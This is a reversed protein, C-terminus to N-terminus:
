LTLQDAHLETVGVLKISFDPATDANSNGYVTIGDADVEFRLQKAGDFAGDGKFTYGKLASFDLKDGDGFGIIVDQKDSLGMENLANFKFTDKGSGGYMTDAGLGGILVNEGGDGAHLIDNGAGGNLVNNGASGWIENDAANGTLNISLNGLQRADLNELNAGLTISASGTFSSIADADMRLELTDTGQNAKEVITDELAVTAKTGTGKVLLDVIYTDNGEGGILTDVGKGGDLVNNGGNGTITNKLENGTGKLAGDLLILNELNDGLTYDISAKVTDTGENALEIVVDGANDVIYTDNGKGGILTDAGAGGDLINAAANGTLVNDQSNGTLNIAAASDVIANEVNDALTYSNKAYSVVRVTDIGGAEANEEVVVDKDSYVYYTDDGNGGVLLDGGGKGNLTDNGDGAIIVNRSANGILVNDSANGTIDFLGTGTVTVNEVNLLSTSSLDVLQAETKSLNRYTIQLTDDGEGANEVLLGLERADDIVYTDNGKGGILTDVGGKGDLLNDGDNGTLVNNAANGTLNIKLAGTQSADLNELNAALTISANGTFSAIADADMRLQLTDTGDNAKETITDELAVTAKTGTGKVLLDVIYTDDGAGGILTDVGKGGDLVNAASNGTIINKLDNGTGNSAGDLLVLNELNAGLTYSISSRVTDTGENELEVVVDGANDVIYTDNGKGGILTDAGAGGDLINAAANGTLVNDQSNGTLNIAATSDVIANEVNDALTYSNKAYSVVRVTDIGGAEANEEVVVDKDSYVYYTDDGNGGVLLDGGGKGNLTDNGDGAIIVNRSANGILVNDSANGTIDFLGTGTITVNEVNLLSTSSLDVLQAETKSLNRYTIQLTDNGEGANEVLLGLERADDIVYTDNGKGGILTDVGAKGDLLNDGDNGTLVNDAANGTLNIKLAGTQSADLNELNAALTLSANGTFSAIADADMRLQLTDSGENAKETITDELAVTAKTGTGKVLLDVIYTDDGSGGVLTDVGAGGDLTDNGAGGTLVNKASNGILVNDLENGTGNIAASGTLTLNELNAGLAWTVSSQVTDTGADANEIIVDKLNDVIYTDDGTGGALTDAGAGGDLLDDGAGGLLTDNGNGGVLHDNGEEGSLVVASDGTWTISNDGADGVLKNSNGNADFRQSYIDGYANRGNGDRISSLSEWTVIFGGDDTAAVVPFMDNSADSAITLPGGVKVGNKDYVQAYLNAAGSHPAEDSTAWSIVYGGGKLATIAPEGQIESSSPNVQTEGGLKAGTASYRQMFVNGSIANDNSDLKVSSWTVVYSGDALETVEAGSQNGATTTNVRVNGGIAKGNADYRQMYVDEEGSNAREREWVVVFGGNALATVSPEEAFLVNDKAASDVSIPEGILAHTVPNVLQVFVEGGESGNDRLEENWAVVWTGNNLVTISADEVRVNTNPDQTHITVATGNAVGANTYAQITFTYETSTWGVLYGGAKDATVIPNSGAAGDLLVNKVLDQDKDYQQLWIGSPQGVDGLQEWVIVYGGDSLATSAPEMTVKATGSENAFRGTDLTLTADDFRIQEINELSTTHQGKVAINGEKDTGFTFDALKGDLVATDNGAGGDLTVDESGVWHLTNDGDDAIIEISAAGVLQGQANVQQVHVVQNFMIDGDDNVVSTQTGTTWSVLLSGDARVLVTPADWLAEGSASTGVQIPAADYTSGDANFRQVYIGAGDPNFINWALLYGGDPLSQASSGNVSGSAAVETPSGVPQFSQDYQQLHIVRSPNLTGDDVWTVLFGTQTEIVQFYEANSYQSNVEAVTLTSGAVPKGSADVKTAMLTTPTISGDTTFKHQTYTLWYGGDGDPHLAMDDAEGVSANGTVMTQVASAKGDTYVVAKVNSYYNGQREDGHAESWMVIYKNDGLVTVTADELELKASTVTVANGVKSGDAAFLQTYITSVDTKDNESAWAVIFQGNPLVTVSPDDVEGSAIETRQLLEGSASYRAVVVGQFDDNEASWVLAYGDDQGNATLSVMAPGDISGSALTNDTQRIIQVSGDDLTVAQSSSGEFVVNDGNKIVINEGDNGFTYQDLTSM